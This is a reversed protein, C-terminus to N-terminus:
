KVSYVNIWVVEVIKGRGRTAKAFHPLIYLGEYRYLVLSIDFSGIIKDMSVLRSSVQAATVRPM